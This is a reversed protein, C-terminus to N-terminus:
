IQSSLLTCLSTSLAYSSVNHKKMHGMQSPSAELCVFTAVLSSKLIYKLEETRINTTKNKEKEQNSSIGVVHDLGLHANKSENLITPRKRSWNKCFALFNKQISNFYHRNNSIKTVNQLHFRVM